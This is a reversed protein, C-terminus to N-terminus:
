RAGLDNHRGCLRSFMFRIVVKIETILGAKSSYYFEHLNDEEPDNEESHVSAAFPFVAPRYIRLLKVTEAATTNAKLPRNGALFLRGAIVQPLLSFKDLSLRYWFRTFFRDNIGSIVTLECTELQKNRYITETRRQRPVLGSLMFYPIAGMLLLGLGSLRHVVSVLWQSMGGPSIDALLFRDVVATHNGTEPDILSNHYIIKNEIELDVGVYSGSCVISRTISTAKDILVHSAIIAGPGVVTIEQLKVHDAVAVPSHINCSDALEVNQGLWIGEENNYGPLFYHFSDHGLIRMNLDFYSKITDLPSVPFDTNALPVAEANSLHRADSAWAFVLHKGDKVALGDPSGPRLWESRQKDYAVWYLGRFLLLEEDGLFAQNQQLIQALSDEPRATAYTVEMGWREGHQFYKEVEPVPERQVIRIASVHLLTCLDFYYELLPKNVIELMFPSLEPMIQAPWVFDGIRCDILGRM